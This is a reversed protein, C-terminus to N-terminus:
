GDRGQERLGLGAGTVAAGLSFIVLPPTSIVSSCSVPAPSSVEAPSFQIEERGGVQRPLHLGLVQPKSVAEQGPARPWM